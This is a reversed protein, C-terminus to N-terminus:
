CPQMENGCRLEEGRTYEKGVDIRLVSYTHPIRKTETCFIVLPTAHQLRDVSYKAKFAM